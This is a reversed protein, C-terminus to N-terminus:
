LILNRQAFHDVGVQKNAIRFIVVGLKAQRLGAFDPVGDKDFIFECQIWDLRIVGDDRNDVGLAVM